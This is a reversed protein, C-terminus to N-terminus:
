AKKRRIYLKKNVKAVIDGAPDVIDISFDPLYKEGNSTEQKIKDIIKETIIFTATVKEKSAKAFDISATKDWIVYNRGLINMLMLMFHPDVMSYLSGGFHTGVANRNYWRVKMSVITKKWDPSISEVKIGAGIYPPYFCLLRKLKKGTIAM